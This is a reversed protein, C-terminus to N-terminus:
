KTIDESTNERVACPKCTSIKIKPRNKPIKQPGCAFNPCSKFTASASYLKRVFKSSWCDFIMRVSESLFQGNQVCGRGRNDLTRWYMPLPTTCASAITRYSTATCYTPFLLRPASFTTPRWKPTILLESVTYFM